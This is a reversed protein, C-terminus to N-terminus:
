KIAIALTPESNSLVCGPVHEHAQIAAKIAIKDPEKKVRFFEPPIQQEDTIIVKAQGNRVSLTAEPLEAKRLEATTMVNFALKRLSAERRDLRAKREQLEHIYEATGNATAQTSGIRRVLERLFEFANTEGEIMDSRLVEDEHLEPNAALLDLIQRQVIAPDLNRQSV